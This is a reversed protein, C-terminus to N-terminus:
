RRARGLKTMMDAKRKDKYLSTYDAEYDMRRRDGLVFAFAIDRSYPNMLLEGEITRGAASNAYYVTDGLKVRGDQLDVESDSNYRLEEPVGWEIESLRPM